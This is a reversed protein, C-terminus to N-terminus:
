GEQWISYGIPSTPLEAHLQQEQLILINVEGGVFAYFYFFRNEAEVELKFEPNPSVSHNKYLKISVCRGRFLM